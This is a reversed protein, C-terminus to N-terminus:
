LDSATGPYEVLSSLSEGSAVNILDFRGQDRHLTPIHWIDAHIQMKRRTQTTNVDGVCGSVM